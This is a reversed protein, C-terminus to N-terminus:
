EFEAGCNPCQKVEDDVEADCEPCAASEVEPNVVLGCEPCEASGEPISSSCAPCVGQLEQEQYRFSSAHEPAGHLWHDRDIERAATEDATTV